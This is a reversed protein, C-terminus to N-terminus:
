KNKTARKARAQISLLENNASLLLNVLKDNSQKAAFLLLEDMYSSATKCDIVSIGNEAADDDTEADATHDTEEDDREKASLEFAFHPSVQNSNM